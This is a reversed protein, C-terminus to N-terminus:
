FSHTHISIKLMTFTMYKPKASSAPLRKWGIDDTDRPRTILRMNLNNPPQSNLEQTPCHVFFWLWQYLHLSLVLLLMLLYSNICSIDSSISLLILDVSEIWFTEWIHWVDSSPRLNCRDFNQLKREVKECMQRTYSRHNEPKGQM